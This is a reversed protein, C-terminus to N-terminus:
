QTISHPIGYRSASVNSRREENGVKRQVKSVKYFRPIKIRLSQSSHELIFKLSIM